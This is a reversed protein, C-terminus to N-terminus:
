AKVDKMKADYWQKMQAMSELNESWGPVVKEANAYWKAVNPYSKLEVNASVLTSVTALIAIDAITLHDGAVYEQGELFTNLFGLATEIKKFDEPDGPKNLIFIPHFYDTFSKYLVGMDFYLRQNVIAQQKPDKPYLSDDKGYKQVLYVLIARSEWLAFGNDVITPVTHQPNIKVFEPKLQEKELANVIKKNLQIGLAAATMLVSRCPASGPSYYFDM